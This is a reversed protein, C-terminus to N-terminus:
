LSPTRTPIHETLLSLVNVLLWDLAEGLAHIATASYSQQGM